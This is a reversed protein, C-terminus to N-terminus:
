NENNKNFLEYIRTLFTKQPPRNARQHAIIIQLREQSLTQKKNIPSKSERKSLLAWLKNLLKTLSNKKFNM